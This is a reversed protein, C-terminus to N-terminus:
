RYVELKDLKSSYVKKRSLLSDVLSLGLNLYRNAENEIMERALDEEAKTYKQNTM